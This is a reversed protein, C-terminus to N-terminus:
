CCPVCPVVTVVVTRKEEALQLIRWKKINEKKEKESEYENKIEIQIFIVKILELLNQEALNINNFSRQNCWVRKKRMNVSRNCSARLHCIVVAIVIYKISLKM